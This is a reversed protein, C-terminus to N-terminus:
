ATQEAPTKNGRWADYSWIGAGATTVFLFVLFYALPAEGRNSWWFPTVHEPPFNFGLTHAWIYVGALELTAILSSWPVFAGVIVLFGFVLEITGAFGFITMYDAHGGDPGVGGFWGLMKQAGHTFYLIGVGIRLLAYAYPKFSSFDSV